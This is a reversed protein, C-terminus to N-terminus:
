IRGQRINQNSAIFGPVITLKSNGTISKIILKNTLNFDVNAFGFNSDTKILSRTDIYRSNEIYNSIILSSMLEGTALAQDLSHKSLERLLYIGKLTEKLDTFIINLAEIVAAQQNSKILLKTCVIHRIKLKELLIKYEENRASALESIVKLDDTIGSFASVVVVCPSSQSEIIKKVGKIREPSGVSTGGFKLVKM